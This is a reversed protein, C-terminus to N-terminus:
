MMKYMGKVVVVNQYGQNINPVTTAFLKTILNKSLIYRQAIRFPTHSAQSFNRCTMTAM